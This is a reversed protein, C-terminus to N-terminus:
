RPQWADSLLLYQAPGLRSDRVTLVNRRDKPDAVPYAQHNRNGLPFVLADEPFVHDARVLGEVPPDSDVFAPYLRLLNAYLRRSRLLARDDKM